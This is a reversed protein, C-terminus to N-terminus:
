GIKNERCARAWLRSALTEEFAEKQAQSFKMRVQARGGYYAAVEKASEPESLVWRDLDVRRSKARATDRALALDEKAASAM